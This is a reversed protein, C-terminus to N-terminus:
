HKRESDVPAAYLFLSSTSGSYASVVVHDRRKVKVMQSALGKTARWNDLIGNPMRLGSELTNPPGVATIVFPSAMDVHNIQISGGVCRVATSAIIRQETDLDRISIAEAGNAFLENVIDRIDMDHVIYDDKLVALTDAPIRGLYDQLTVEVGKGEVPMLGALLKVRQLEETILGVETTKKGRAQQYDDIKARLDTIENRLLKNKDKEDLLAQALGSFRTTPIGSIRRVSWQTKLAAALLMGLILSLITVQWIWGSRKPDLPAM